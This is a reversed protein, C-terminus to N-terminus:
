GTPLDHGGPARHVANGATGAISAWRAKGDDEGLFVMIMSGVDSVVM